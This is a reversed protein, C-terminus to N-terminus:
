HEELLDVKALHDVGPALELIGVEGFNSENLANAETTLLLALDAAFRMEILYTHLGNEVGNHQAQTYGLCVQSVKMAFKM